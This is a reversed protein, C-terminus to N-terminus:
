SVWLYLQLKEWCIGKARKYLMFHPLNKKLGIEIIAEFSGSIKLPQTSGYAFLLKDPNKIQNSVVVRSKKLLEWTNQSIINSKSGSDILMRVKVGGVKCTITEDDDLHFVYEVGESVVCDVDEPTPKRSRYKKTSSTGPKPTFPYKRKSFCCKAFHGRRHCKGCKADIAPCDHSKGVKGDNGCRTCKRAQGVNKEKQMSVANVNGQSSTQPETFGSLQREITELSNAEAIIMNLTITDGM